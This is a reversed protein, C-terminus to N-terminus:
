ERGEVADQAAKDFDFSALYAARYQEIVCRLAADRARQPAALFEVIASFM